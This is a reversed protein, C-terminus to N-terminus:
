RNVGVKQLEETLSQKVEKYNTHNKPMHCLVKTFKMVNTDDTPMRGGNRCNFLTVFATQIEKLVMEDELCMSIKRKTVNDQFFLCNKSGQLIYPMINMHSMAISELLKNSDKSEFSNVMYASITFFAEIKKTYDNEPFIRKGPILLM